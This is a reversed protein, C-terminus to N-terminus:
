LPLSITFTTGRGPASSVLLTGKHSEIVKKSISLGLGTGGSKHTVFPKFLDALYEAPIGCGNDRIEIILSNEGTYTHLSVIGEEPLAEFANRLLNAIAQRLKVPDAKIDPLNKDIKTVFHHHSKTFTQMSNTIENLWCSTSISEKHLTEGNNYDSLEDLLQVLYAMDLRVSKWFAFTSVEPHEKEIIQLSSNILTVPNRVEHSIQSIAIRQEEIISRLHASDNYESM